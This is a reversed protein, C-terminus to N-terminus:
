NHSKVLADILYKMAQYVINLKHEVNISIKMVSEVDKLSLVESITM